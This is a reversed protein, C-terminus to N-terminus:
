VHRIAVVDGDGAGTWRAGLTSTVEGGAPVVDDDELGLGFCKGRCLLLDVAPVNGDIIDANPTGSSTTIDYV